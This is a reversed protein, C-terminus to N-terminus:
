ESQIGDEEVKLIKKRHVNFEDMLSYSEGFLNICAKYLKPEYKQVIQLEDGVRSNFPCGVCGTRKM